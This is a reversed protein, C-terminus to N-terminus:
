FDARALSVIGATETRLINQHLRVGKAFTELYAIEKQSFGKEPGVFFLTSNKLPHYVPAGEKLSGFYAEGEFTPIEKISSFFQIKPLDLRGCQKLASISIKKLRMEQHESLSKKESKEGAFLWFDTAGLETGKEIIFDLKSLKPLAQALILKNSRTPNSVVKKLFLHTDHVIGFALDGRGNVVEILDGEQSRMVKLLHKQEEMALTITEGKALPGDYFFRHDPM